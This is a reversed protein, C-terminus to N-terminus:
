NAINKIAKTVLDLRQDPALNDFQELLERDVNTLVDCSALGDYSEALERALETQPFINHASCYMSVVKQLEAVIQKETYNSMKM